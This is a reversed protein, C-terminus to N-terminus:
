DKMNKWMSGRSGGGAEAAAAGAKGRAQKEGLVAATADEGRAVAAARKKGDESLFPLYVTAVGLGVVTIGGVFLVM